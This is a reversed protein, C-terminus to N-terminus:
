VTIMKKSSKFGFPKCSVLYLAVKNKIKRLLFVKDEGWHFVAIFKGKLSLKTVEGDDHEAEQEEENEEWQLPYSRLFIRRSSYSEDRFSRVRMGEEEEMRTHTYLFKSPNYSQKRPIM